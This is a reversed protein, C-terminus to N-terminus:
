NGAEKQKIKRIVKNEQRKMYQEMFEYDPTQDEKIPLLIKQRMMRDGNFKYGYQYKSKQKLLLPKIFLYQYKNGEVDIFHWRKVDDSFIAQYPHYFSVVMGNGNYIVGLVNQDLSANINSVFNSIGNGEVTAGIFPIKGENMENGTLRVGSSIKFIDEIPFDKWELDELERYDNIENMKPFKYKKVNKEIRNKIFDEMYTWNVEGHEDVPLLVKKVALDTSSIQNGYSPKPISRLLVNVVFLGTYKNFETDIPKIAHIKMDLSVIGPHYFCGGLFSYTIANEVTKFNKHPIETTFQAIGNKKDTATIRPITGDLLLDKNINAGTSVTFVKEIIFTDWQVDNMM